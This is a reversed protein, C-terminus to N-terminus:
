ARKDFFTSVLSPDKSLLMELDNPNIIPHNAEPLDTLGLGPRCLRYGKADLYYSFPLDLEHMRLNIAWEREGSNRVLCGRDQLRGIIFRYSEVSLPNGTVDIRQLAPYDILPSLDTILNRQLDMRGIQADALGGIDSLASDHCVLATLSSIGSLPDSLSAMDCGTLILIELRTCQGLGELTRAHRLSLTTISELETASFPPPHNVKQTLKSLVTDDM